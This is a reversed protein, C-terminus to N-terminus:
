ASLLARPPACPITLVASILASVLAALKFPPFQQGSATVKINWSTTAVGAFGLIALLCSSFLAVLGALGAAQLLDVNGLGTLILLLFLWALVPLWCCLQGAENRIKVLNEFLRAGM